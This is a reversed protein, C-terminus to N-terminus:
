ATTMRTCQFNSSRSHVSHLPMFIMFNWGLHIIFVHSYLIKTTTKHMHLDDYTKSSLERRGFSSPWSILMEHCFYVYTYMKYKARQKGENERCQQKNWCHQQIKKKAKSWKSQAATNFKQHTETKLRVCMQSEYM